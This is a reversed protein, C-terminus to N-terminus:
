NWGVGDGLVNGRAVGATKYSWNGSVAFSTNFQSFISYVTSSNASVPWVLTM